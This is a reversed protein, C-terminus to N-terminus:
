TRKSRSRSCCCRVSPRSCSISSCSATFARASRTSCPAARASRADRAVARVRRRRAAAAVFICRGHADRDGGAADPAPAVHRFPLGARLHLPQRERFVRQLTRGECRLRTWFPERSQYLRRFLDPTIPWAVNGSTFTPTFSWGYVVVQLDNLVSGRPAGAPPSSSTAIRSPADLRLAPGSLRQHRPRPDGRAAPGVADCVERRPTCCTGSKPASRCPRASPVTGRARRRCRNSIPRPPDGTSRCTSRSGASSRARPAM